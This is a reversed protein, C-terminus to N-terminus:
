GDNEVIADLGCILVAIDDHPPEGDLIREILAAAPDRDAM